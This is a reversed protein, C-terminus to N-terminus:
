KWGFRSADVPRTEALENQENILGFHRAFTEIFVDVRDRAQRQGIGIEKAAETLTREKTCYIMQVLALIAGGERGRVEAIEKTASEFCAVIREEMESLRLSKAEEALDPNCLFFEIFFAKEQGSTEDVATFSHWWWDYGQKRLTGRLM